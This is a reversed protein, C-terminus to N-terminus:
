AIKKGGKVDKRSPLDRKKPTPKAGRVLTFNENMLKRGGGKVNASKATLDKAKKPAPKAARVLTVNDNVALKDKAGGKVNSSKPSLDKTKAPRKAGM